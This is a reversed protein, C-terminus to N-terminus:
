MLQRTGFLSQLRSKLSPAATEGMSVQAQPSLQGSLHLNLLRLRCVPGCRPAAWMGAAFGPQPSPPFKGLTPVLSKWTCLKKAEQLKEPGWLLWYDRKESSSASTQQPGVIPLSRPWISHSVSVFFCHGWAESETKLSSLDRRQWPM